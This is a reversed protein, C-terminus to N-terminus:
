VSAALALTCAANTVVFATSKILNIMTLTGKV